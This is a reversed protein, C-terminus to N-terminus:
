SEDVGCCTKDYGECSSCSVASRVFFSECLLESFVSVHCVKSFNVM